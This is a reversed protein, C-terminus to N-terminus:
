QPKRQLKAMALGKRRIQEFGKRDLPKSPGSDLAEILHTDIRVRAAAAKERRLADHVFESATTFGREAVEEDIWSKLSSPLTINM